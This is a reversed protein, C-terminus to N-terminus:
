RFQSGKSVFRVARGCMFVRVVRVVRVLRFLGVCVCPRVQQYVQPCLVGGRARRALARQFITDM